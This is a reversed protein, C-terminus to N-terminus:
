TKSSPTSRRPRDDFEEQPEPDEFEGISPCIFVMRNRCHFLYSNKPGSIVYQTGELIVFEPLEVVVYDSPIKPKSKCNIAAM